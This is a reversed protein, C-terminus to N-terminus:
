TKKPKPRGKKDGATKKGWILHGYRNLSNLGGNCFLHYKDSDKSVFEKIKELTEENTLKDREELASKKGMTKIRHCWWKEMIVWRESDRGKPPKSKNHSSDGDTEASQVSSNLEVNDRPNNNTEDKAQEDVPPEVGSLETNRAEIIDRLLNRDEKSLKNILAGPFFRVGHYIRSENQAINQEFDITLLCWEKYLIPCLTINEKSSYGIAAYKGNILFRPMNDKTLKVVQDIDSQNKLIERKFYEKDEGRIEPQLNECYDYASQLDDRKQMLQELHEKVTCHGDPPLYLLKTIKTLAENCDFGDRYLRSLIDM